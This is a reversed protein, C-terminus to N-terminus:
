NGGAPAHLNRESRRRWILIATAVVLDGVKIGALMWALSTPAQGREHL